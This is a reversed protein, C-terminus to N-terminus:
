RREKKRSIKDQYMLEDALDLMEDLTCTEDPKATYCGLSATLEYPKGASRNYETLYERFRRRFGMFYDTESGDPIFAAVAFEDGGFRSCIEGRLSSSLLARGVASIAYDGDSHGYQDNIKKLGDLDVSMVAATVNKGRRSKLKKAFEAYFGRRNLLGTTYDRHSLRELEKNADLLQENIANMRLRGNLNGLSADIASMLSHMKEYEDFDIKPQFICYGLVNDLFHACCVVIPETYVTLLNLEPILQERPIDCPSQPEWFYRHYLVKMTDSFPKNGRHSAGYDPPDLVNDNVVFVSTPFQFKNILISPLERIDSMKSMSSQLSCMLDQRYSANKLRELMGKIIDNVYEAEVPRCGCSQSLVMHFGIKFPGTVEAGRDLRMVSNIMVRGMRDYDPRCTTIHPVHFFAHSLGDFGTVICDRPITYGRNELYDCVSLAMSDNACIIADPLPRKEKEFWNRVTDVAPGEWFDGYGVMDPAYSIGNEELASRFADIREESFRNDRPGAIMMLNRAEHERIVHRCLDGFAKGYDFSFSICGEIQSDVTFVPIDRSLAGSIMLNIARKDYICGPMVILASLIDYPILRFVAAEGKSNPDEPDFLDNCANFILLRYNNRCAYLNLSKILNFRDENHIASLCVGILRPSEHM